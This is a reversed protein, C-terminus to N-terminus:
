SVLKKICLNYLSSIHLNFLPWPVPDQDPNWWTLHESEVVTHNFFLIGHVNIFNIFCPASCQFPRNQCLSRWYTVDPKWLNNLWKMNIVLIRYRYLRRIWLVSRQVTQFIVHSEGWTRIQSQHLHHWKTEIWNLLTTENLASINNTSTISNNWKPKMAGPGSSIKHKAM